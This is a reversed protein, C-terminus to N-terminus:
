TIGPLMLQALKTRIREIRARNVGFDSYGVRSASRVHIRTIGGQEEILYFETDDVFRFFSSRYEVHLYNREVSVTTAGKETNIVQLLGQHAKAMGGNFVIPEIYQNNSTATQSHVCNPKGSCPALKEANVGLRPRTSSCGSLLVIWILAIPYHNKM